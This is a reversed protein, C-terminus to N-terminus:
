VNVYANVYAVVLYTELALSLPEAHTCLQLQARMSSKCCAVALEKLIRSGERTPRLTVSQNM